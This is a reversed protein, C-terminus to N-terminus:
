VFVCLLRGHHAAGATVRTNVPRHLLPSDENWDSWQDTEQPPTRRGGNTRQVLGYHHINTLSFQCPFRFHESFVQGLAAKDMFRTHISKSEFEPWQMHFATVLWM